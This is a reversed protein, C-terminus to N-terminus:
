GLGLGETGGLDGRFRRERRSSGASRDARSDLRHAGGRRVSIAAVTSVTTAVGLRHRWFEVLRVCLQDLVHTGVAPEGLEADGCGLIGEASNGAFNGAPGIMTEISFMPWLQLDELHSAYVVVHRHRDFFTNAMGSSSTNVITVITPAAKAAGPLVPYETM